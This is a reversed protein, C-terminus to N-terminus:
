HCFTIRASSVAEWVFANMATTVRLVFALPALIGKLLRTLSYLELDRLAQLIATAEDFRNTSGKL